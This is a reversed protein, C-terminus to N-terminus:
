YFIVDITLKKIIVHFKTYQYNMIWSVINGMIGLQIPSFHSNKPYFVRFETSFIALFPFINTTDM